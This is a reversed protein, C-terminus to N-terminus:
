AWSWQGGSSGGLLQLSHQHFQALTSRHGVSVLICHPLETRLLQYLVHELGEDMASTAEDLFAIAPRNILVRAFALRQQEGLSLIRSWDAEQDLRDALHPLQVKRLADLIAETPADLAPYTLSARLTGLPLYPKQSLFLAQSGLPREIQGSAFPWLGALTRLLTTKGSGSPGKILLTEGAQLSLELGQLLPEQDPRTIQVNRLVLAKSESTKVTPL